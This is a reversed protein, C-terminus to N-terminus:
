SIILRIVEDDDSEDYFLERDDRRIIGLERDRRRLEQEAALRDSMSMNDYDEDDLIRRDYHDLQPLPRYDSFTM